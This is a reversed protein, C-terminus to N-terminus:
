SAGGRERERNTHLTGGASYEVATGYTFNSIKKNTYLEHVLVRSITRCLQQRRRKAAICVCVCVCM